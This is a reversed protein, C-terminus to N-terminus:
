ARINMRVSPQYQESELISEPKSGSFSLARHQHQPLRCLSLFTLLLIRKGLTHKLAFNHFAVQAVERTCGLRCSGRTRTGSNDSARTKTTRVFTKQHHDRNLVCACSLRAQLCYLVLWC